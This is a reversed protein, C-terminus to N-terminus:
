AFSSAGGTVKSFIKLSSCAILCFTSFISCDDSSKHTHYFDNGCLRDVFNRATNWDCCSAVLWGSYFWIPISSARM